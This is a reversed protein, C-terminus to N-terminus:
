LSLSLMTNIDGEKKYSKEDGNNDDGSQSLRLQLDLLRDKEKFNMKEKNNMM